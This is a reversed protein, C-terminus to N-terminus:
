ETKVSRADHGQEPKASAISSADAETPLQRALAEVGVRFEQVAQEPAHGPIVDCIFRLKSIMRATPTIHGRIQDLMNALDVQVLLDRTSPDLLHPPGGNCDDIECPDAAIREFMQFRRM